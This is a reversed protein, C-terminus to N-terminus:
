FRKRRPKYGRKDTNNLMYKDAEQDIEENTAIRNQKMWNEIEDRDFYIQKGRPKYHPIERKCTLQYLTSKPIGTYISTEELNLVNKTSIAALRSNCEINSLERKIEEITRGDNANLLDKISEMIAM